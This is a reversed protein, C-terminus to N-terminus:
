KKCLIGCSHQTACGTIKFVLTLLLFKYFIYNMTKILLSLLGGFFHVTFHVMNQGESLCQTGMLAASAWAGARPM